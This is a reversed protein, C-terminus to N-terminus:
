LLPNLCGCKWKLAFSIPYTILPHAFTIGRHVPKKQVKRKLASLLLCSTNRQKPETTPLMIPSQALPKRPWKWLPYWAPGALYSGLKSKAHSPALSMESSIFLNIVSPSPSSYRSAHESNQMRLYHLCKIHEVKPVTFNATQRETYSSHPPPSIHLALLTAMYGWKDLIRRVCVQWRPSTILM